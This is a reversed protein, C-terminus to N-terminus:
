DIRVFEIINNSNGTQKKARAKSKATAAAQINKKAKASLRSGDYMIPINLNLSKDSFNVIAKFPVFLDYLKNSFSLSVFFGKAVVKLNEFQNELVITIAEPYQELLFDPLIAEKDQTIFSIYFSHKHVGFTHTEALKTIAKRVVEISALSVSEAIWTTFDFPDKKM